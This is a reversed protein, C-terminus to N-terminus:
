RCVSILSCLLPRPRVGSLSSGTLYGPLYRAVMPNNGGSGSVNMSPNAGNAFANPQNSHLNGNHQQNTTMLGGSNFNNQHHHHFQGPNNTISSQGGFSGVNGYPSQQHQNSGNINNYQQSQQSQQSQQHQNYNTFSGSQNQNVGANIQNSSNNNSNNYQGISANLLAGGGGSIGNYASGLNNNFGNTNPANGSFNATSQSSGPWNM